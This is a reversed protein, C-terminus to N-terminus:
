VFALNGISVLSTLHRTVNCKVVHDTGNAFKLCDSKAQGRLRVDCQLKDLYKRCSKCWIRAVTRRGDSEVIDVDFSDDVHWSLYTDYRVNGVTIKQM